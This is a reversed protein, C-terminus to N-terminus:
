KMESLKIVQNNILIEPNVIRKKMKLEGLSIGKEKLEKIRKSLNIKQEMKEILYFDDFHFDREELIGEILCEKVIRTM